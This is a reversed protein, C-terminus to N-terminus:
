FYTENIFSIVQEANEANILKEFHQEICSKDKYIQVSKKGYCGVKLIIGEHLRKNIENKHKLYDFIKKNSKIHKPQLEEKHHKSKIFTYDDKVFENKPIRELRKIRFSIGKYNGNRNKEYILSNFYHYDNESSGIIGLYGI